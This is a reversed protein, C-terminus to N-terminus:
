GPTDDPHSADLPIILVREISRDRAWGDLTARLDNAVRHDDFFAHLMLMLGNVDQMRQTPNKGEPEGEVDISVLL